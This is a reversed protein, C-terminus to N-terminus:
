FLYDGIHKVEVLLDVWLEYGAKKAKKCFWFDEGVTVEGDKGSEWFFYPHKLKKFVDTKILLFGTAVGECTLFGNPYDTPIKDKKEQSM